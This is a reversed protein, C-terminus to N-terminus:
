FATVIKSVEFHVGLREFMYVYLMDVIQFYKENLEYYRFSYKLINVVFGNKRTNEKKKKKSKITLTKFTNHMIKYPSFHRSPHMRITIQTSKIYKIKNM